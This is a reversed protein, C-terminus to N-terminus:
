QQTCTISYSPSVHGADVRHPFRHRAAGNSDVTFSEEYWSGGGPESYRYGCQVTSDPNFGSADIVLRRCVSPPWGTDDVDQPTSPRDIDPHEGTAPSRTRM